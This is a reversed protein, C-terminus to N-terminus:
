SGNVFLSLSAATTHSRWPQNFTWEKALMRIIPEASLHTGNFAIAMLVVCILAPEIRPAQTLRRSVHFYIGVCCTGIALGIMVEIVSHAHLAIRSVAIGAVLASVAMYVLVRRSAAARCGALAACCGYFTTAFSVHGSPSQLDGGPDGAGCILFGLKALVTVGVCSAIAMSLALARDGDGRLLFFMFLLASAPLLLAADGLNTITEVMDLDTDGM